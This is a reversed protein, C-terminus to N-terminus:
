LGRYTGETRVAVRLVTLIMGDDDIYYIVRYRGVRLRWIDEHNRLKVAKAPRPEEELGKLEQHIRRYIAHSLERLAKQAERHLRVEYAM